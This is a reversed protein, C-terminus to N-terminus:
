FNRAWDRADIIPELRMRGVALIYKVYESFVLKM